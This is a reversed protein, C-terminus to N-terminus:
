YQKNIEALKMFEEDSMALFNKNNPSKSSTSRTPAAAAAQKSNPLRSSSSAARTGMVQGQPVGIGKPNNRMKQAVLYDGVAKYAQLFPMNPSINGLARQKEMETTILEFVGNNKQQNLSRILSPDKFFLNKSQQDLNNIFLLTETGQPATKVEDLTEKLNLYEDSTEYNTPVYTSQEEDDELSFDM